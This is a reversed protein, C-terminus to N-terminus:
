FNFPLLRSNFTFLNKPLFNVGLCTSISVDEAPRFKNLRLFSEFHNLEDRLPASVHRLYKHFGNRVHVTSFSANSRLLNLIDDLESASCRANTQFLHRTLAYNAVADGIFDLGHYTPTLNNTTFTEHTFSQLLYSRDTFKYQLKQEVYDYGDVLRDLKKLTEADHPKRLPSPFQADDALVPVGLWDIFALANQMGFRQLYWGILAYNIEVIAQQRREAGTPHSSLQEILSPASQKWQRLARGIHAPLDDNSTVLKIEGGKDNCNDNALALKSLADERFQHLVTPDSRHERLEPNTYIQTSVAFRTFHEGLIRNRQPCQGDTRSVFEAIPLNKTRSKIGSGM